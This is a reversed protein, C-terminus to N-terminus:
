NKVRSWLKAREESNQIFNVSKEDFFYKSICNRLEKNKNSFKLSKFFGILSNRYKNKDQQYKSYFIM